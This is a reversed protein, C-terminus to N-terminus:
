MSIRSYLAHLAEGVIEQTYRETILKKGKKGCLELHTESRKLVELLVEYLANANNPIEWGAGFASLESFNCKTTYIVPKQRAAAEIISMSFAEEHSPLIFLECLDLVELKRDGYCPGVIKIRENLNNADIKNQLISQFGRYDPGALVLVWDAVRGESILKGWADILEVLGKGKWLRGMYLAVRKSNLGFTDRITSTETLKSVLLKRSVGNPIVEISGKFGFKRIEFAENETLAHIIPVRKLISSLLLFKYARKKLSNTRHAGSVSGHPSLIMPRKAKQAAYYASLTTYDWLMHTHLVDSERVSYEILEGFDKSYSWSLPRQRRVFKHPFKTLQSVNEDLDDVVGLLNIDVDEHSSFYSLHDDIVQVPGGYKNECIPSTVLLKLSM